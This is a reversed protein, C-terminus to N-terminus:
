KWGRAKRIADIARNINAMVAANGGRDPHYKLALARYAAEVVERPASPLIGLVGYAGYAELGRVPAPPHVARRRGQAQDQRLFERELEELIFRAFDAASETIFARITRPRRRGM